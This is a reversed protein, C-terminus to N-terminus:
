CGKYKRQKGFMIFERKVMTDADKGLIDEMKM